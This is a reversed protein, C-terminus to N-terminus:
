DWTPSIPELVTIGGDQFLVAQVIFVVAMVLSGAALLVGALAVLTVPLVEQFPFNIM